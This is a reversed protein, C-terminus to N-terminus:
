RKFIPTESAGLVMCADWRWYMKARDCTVVGHVERDPSAWGGHGRAHGARSCGSCGPGCVDLAWAKGNEEKTATEDINLHRADATSRGVSM